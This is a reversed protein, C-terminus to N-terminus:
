VVKGNNIQFWIRLGIVGSILAIDVMKNITEIRNM